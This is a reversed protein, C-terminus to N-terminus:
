YLRGMPVYNNAMRYIFSGIEYLPGTKPSWRNMAAYQGNRKVEFIWTSGDKGQSLSEPPPASGLFQSSVLASKVDFLEENSLTITKEVEPGQVPYSWVKSFKINMTKSPMDITIISIGDFSRFIALRYIENANKSTLLSSLGFAEYEPSYESTADIASTWLLDAESANQISWIYSYYGVLVLVLSLGIWINLQKTM